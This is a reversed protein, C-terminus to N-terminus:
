LSNGFWFDVQKPTLIILYIFWLSQHKKTISKCCKAISQLNKCFIALSTSFLYNKSSKIPQQRLTTTLATFQWGPPGLELGQEALWKKLFNEIPGAGDTVYKSLNRSFFGFIASQNLATILSLNTFERERFIWGLFCHESNWPNKNIRLEINHIGM